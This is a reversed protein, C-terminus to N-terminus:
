PPPPPRCRTLMGRDVTAEIRVALKVDITQGGQAEAALSVAGVGLLTGIPDRDRIDKSVDYEIRGGSREAEDLLGMIARYIPWKKQIVRNRGQQRPLSTSCIKLRDADRAVRIYIAEPKAETIRIATQIWPVWALQALDRCLGLVGAPGTAITGVSDRLHRDPLLLNRAFEDCIEEHMWYESQSEPVAKHTAFLLYHALEHAVCFREFGGITKHPLLITAASKKTPDISLYAKFRPVSERRTVIVGLHKCIDRLRIPLTESPAALEAAWDILQSRFEKLGNDPM